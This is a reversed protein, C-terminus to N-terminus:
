QLPYNMTIFIQSLFFHTVKSELLLCIVLWAIWIICKFYNYRINRRILTQLLEILWEILIWHWRRMPGELDHLINAKFEDMKLHEWRFFFKFNIANEVNFLKTPIDLCNLIFGIKTVNGLEQYHHNKEQYSASLFRNCSLKWNRFYASWTIRHLIYRYPPFTIKMYYRHNQLNENRAVFNFLIFM